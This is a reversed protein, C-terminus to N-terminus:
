KVTLIWSHVSISLSFYLFEVAVLCFGCLLLLFLTDFAFPFPRICSSSCLSCTLLQLWKSSLEYTVEKVESERTKLM